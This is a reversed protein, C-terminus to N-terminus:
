FNYGHKFLYDIISLNYEVNNNIFNIDIKNKKFNENKLYNKSGEGTIYESAGVQKCIELILDSKKSNFNFTSNLYIECNLELKKILHKLITINLESLNEFKVNLIKAFDDYIYNFFKSKKYSLELSRLHKEIWNTSYDIKIENIKTSIISKKVPVTLYIQKNNNIIVNRNQFSRRSFQVDDLIVFIDCKKLRLFFNVWPIYEPQHILVKKM